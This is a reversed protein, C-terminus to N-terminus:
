LSLMRDIGSNVKKKKKTRKTQSLFNNYKAAKNATSGMSSNLKGGKRKSSKQRKRSQFKPKVSYSRTSDTNPQQIYSDHHQPQIYSQQFSSMDHFSFSTDVSNQSTKGKKRRKSRKERQDKSM